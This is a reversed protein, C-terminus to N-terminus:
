IVLINTIVQKNTKKLYKCWVVFSMKMQKVETQVWDTFKILSHVLGIYKIKEVIAWNFSSALRYIYKRLRRLQFRADFDEQVSNINQQTLDRNLNLDRNPTPCYNKAM